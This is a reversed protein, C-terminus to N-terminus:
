DLLFELMERVACRVLRKVNGNGMSEIVSPQRGFYLWCCSMWETDRFCNGCYSRYCTVHGYYLIGINQFTGSRWQTCPERRKCPVDAVVQVVFCRGMWSSRFGRSYRQSFKSDQVTRVLVFKHDNMGTMWVRYQTMGTTHYLLLIFGTHWKNLRVCSYKSRNYFIVSCTEARPTDYLKIQLDCRIIAWVSPRFM